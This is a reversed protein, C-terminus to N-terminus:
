LTGDEHTKEEREKEMRKWVIRAERIARGHLKSKTHQVSYSMHEAIEPWTMPRRKGMLYRLMLVERSEPSEVQDIIKNAIDVDTLLRVYRAELKRDIADVKAAVELMRDSPASTQVKDKDYTIAKPLLESKLQERAERLTIIEFREARIGRLFTLVDVNNGRTLQDETGLTREEQDDSRM